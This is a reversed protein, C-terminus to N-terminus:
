GDAAPVLQLVGLPAVEEVVKCGQEAGALLEEPDGLVATESRKGAPLVRM